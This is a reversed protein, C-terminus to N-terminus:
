TKEGIRGETEEHITYRQMLPLQCLTFVLTCGFMGFVKFNVWFDTPYNRWVYENLGALFLFFLGWRLSLLWWGREQMQLAYNLVYKLMPRKLLLGGLLTASFLLNIITPKMKIFLEDNLALTLTGFISVMIGTVLPMPALKREFAYIYLLSGITAAMLIGTAPMLGFLRYVAFFLGLPGMELIFRHTSSLTKKAKVSPTSQQPADSM